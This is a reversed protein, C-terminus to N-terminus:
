PLLLRLQSALIGKPLFLHDNYWFFKTMALALNKLRGGRCWYKLSLFCSNSLFSLCWAVFQETFFCGFSYLWRLVPLVESYFRIHAGRNGMLRKWHACPLILAEPSDLNWLWVKYCSAGLRNRISAKLFVLPGFGDPSNESLLLDLLLQPIVNKFAWCCVRCLIHVHWSTWYKVAM